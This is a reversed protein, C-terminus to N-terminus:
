REGEERETEEEIWLHEAEMLVFARHPSSLGRVRRHAIVQHVLPFLLTAPQERRFITALKRYLSDRRAPDVTTGAAELLRATREHRFGLTSNEGFLRSMREQDVIAVIADFEGSRRRDRIINLDLAVIEARVGVKALQDQLYVAGQREGDPSMLEFRFERGARERVGDGDVDRWGAQQLLRRARARDHELPDPLEGRRYQRRTALADLVPVDAPFNLVQRLERRDIAHTLARRVSAREFRPDSAKWLIARVADPNDAHYIQFRDDGRVKLVEMRGAWGLADVNGALLEPIGGGAAGSFKLILRDIAPRGRFYDPNAELEMMTKPVHRVYRFPGVGLPRTWFEWESFTAPDKEELLHAPYITRWTDLPNGGAPGYTFRATSDDVTEVTVHDPPLWLVDPDQLLRYTFAVDRATFSEGDHWRVDTRLQVTWERYDQSHEWSRALLGRLDGAEDREVLPLFVLFKAPMATIPSLIREDGPYLVTLTDEGAERARDGSRVTADEQPGCGAAVSTALLIRVTATRLRPVGM